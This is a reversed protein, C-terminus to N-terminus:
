GLRQWLEKVLDDKNLWEQKLTDRDRITVTGDQVFLGGGISSRDGSRHGSRHDAMM